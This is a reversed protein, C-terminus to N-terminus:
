GAMALVIRAWRTRGRSGVLMDRVRVGGVDYVYVGPVGDQEGDVHAGEWEGTSTVAQLQTVHVPVALRAVAVEHCRMHAQSDHTQSQPPLLILHIIKLQSTVPCQTATTPSLPTLPQTILLHLPRPPLPLPIPHYISHLYHILQFTLPRSNIFLLLGTCSHSRHESWVGGQIVCKGISM